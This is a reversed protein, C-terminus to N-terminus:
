LVDLKCIQKYECYKCSNELYSPEFKLNEINKYTELILNEIYKMDEDTLNKYISKPHNEVYILGVDAVKVNKLKEFAYKYFCLQNFHKEWNGGINVQNASPPMGTKYDYLSYTGDKNKEIRDIKGTVFYNGVNLNDFCFEIEEIQSVPMEVFHPYYNKLFEFGHKEYKKRKADNTFVSKNLIGNLEQAAREPTYYEGTKKAYNVSNELVKHVASGFNASDWDGMKIDIGLIRKYLFNRPCAAYNNLSSPSLILTRIKERIENEFAKKNGKAKASISRMYQMLFEDGRCEFQEKEFDFVDAFALFKTIQQPKESDFDAFSLTLAYKARTIGVFLLKLLESEKKKQAEEKELVEDTIFKYEGPMKFNEWQKSVLNPLYVQGFERGKAGHYTLLQIANQAFSSKETKIDIGNLLAEDLHKVFSNLSISPDFKFIEGAEDMIRKIGLINELRNKESGVFCELIGTKNVLEILTNKLSHKQAFDKLYDFTKLFGNIRNEDAWDSLIRMNTIFDKREERRGILNQRLLKIYDELNINFPESLLLAFLKDGNLIHNDLAKLYFYILISSRIEFISKGENMQYPINKADLLQAFTALEAKKKCIIAIESLMKEGNKDKPCAPSNIVKEIDDAIYNFEQLVEGFHLMKAKQNKSIVAQNKATLEKSINYNKFAPNNELRGEDQLIVKRSLDLITQTSRYNERLCIVLCEPYRKLFNEINDNKAGQFGYITQDDDGVVFVNKEKVGELLNFIITNQIDNTDQYEDVLFYEYKNAVDELFQRDAEFESIVFNIMDSFDILSLARMKDCYTEYIQWLEEAKKIDNRIKEITELRGKYDTKGKEIKQRIECELEKIKPTLNPNKDIYSLYEDRGMRLSKLKSVYDTFSKAFHYKDAKPPVFYEPEVEDITDKMLQLKLTDSILSVNPALNFQMPNQRIIENCFSHYTYIDVDSAKIGVEKILRTRMECAAADSFTLCLIKQPDIDSSLMYKIREILTFTKGCGPGALVMIQGKLTKICSEQEVSPKEKELVSM